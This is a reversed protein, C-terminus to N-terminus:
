AILGLTKARQVAQTRRRVDLKQFLNTSHTKVTNLSVFLKDAIEQNSFGGAMLELVELERRSIGVQELVADNRKFESAPATSFVAKSQKGALTEAYAHPGVEGSKEVKKVRTLKYGAWGGVVTFLLAVVGVYVEISLDYVFFRYELLRLVTVLLAVTLGYGLVLKKVDWNVL